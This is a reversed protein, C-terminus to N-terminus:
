LFIKELLRITEDRLKIKGERMNFCVDGVSTSDDTYDTILKIALFPIGLARATIGVGYAEMDVADSPLLTNSFKASSSLIYKSERDETYLPGITVRRSDLTNGLALHVTRLDQDPTIVSSFSVVDGKKLTGTSGASGLSVLVEAKTELAKKMSLSASMIPGVGTICREWENGFASLEAKDSAVLLVRKM